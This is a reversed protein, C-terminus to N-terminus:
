PCSSRYKQFYNGLLLVTKVLPDLQAVIKVLFDKQERYLSKAHFIYHPVLIESKKTLPCATLLIHTARLM